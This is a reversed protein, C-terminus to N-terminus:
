GISIFNIAGNNHNKKKQNERRKEKKKEIQKIKKDNFTKEIEQHIREPKSQFAFQQSSSATTTSKSQNWRGQSISGPNESSSQSEKPTQQTSESGLPLPFIGATDEKHNKDSERPLNSRCTHLIKLQEASDLRLFHAAVDTPGLKIFLDILAYPFWYFSLSSSFYIFLFFLAFRLFSFSLPAPQRPSPPTYQQSVARCIADM